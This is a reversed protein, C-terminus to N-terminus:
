NNVPFEKELETMFESFGLQKQFINEVGQQYYETFSERSECTSFYFLPKLNMMKVFNLLKLENIIPIRLDSIVIDIRETKLIVIAEKSNSASIITYGRQKLVDSIICLVDKDDDVILIKRIM